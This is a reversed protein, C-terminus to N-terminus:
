QVDINSYIIDYGNYLDSIPRYQCERFFDPTASSTVIDRNLIEDIAGMLQGARTGDKIDWLNRHICLGIYLKGKKLYPNAYVADFSEFFVTLFVAEEDVPPRFTQTYVKTKLLNYPDPVSPMSLADYDKYYLIKSITDDNLFKIIIEQLKKDLRYFSSTAM